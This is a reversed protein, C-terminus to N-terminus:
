VGKEITHMKEPNYLYNQWMIINFIYLTWSKLGAGAKDVAIQLLKIHGVHM